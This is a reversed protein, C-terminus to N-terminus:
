FTATARYTVPTSYDTGAEQTPSIVAKYCVYVSDTDVVTTSSFITQPSESNEVDAFQKWCNGNNGDCDDTSDNHAFSLSSNGSLNNSQLSYGFGKTTTATWLDVQDYEMLPTGDDGTSDPICGGTTADGSCTDGVRHLQNDASATVAYGNAANTSVVLEQSAYKFSDILLEGLPVLTPTTTVSTNNGCRSVGSSVGLIRFTIQPPVSATVRVSEIVAVDVTTQDIITSGSLHEVIIKYSDAYGESHGTSPAPNILSDIIIQNNTSNFATGVGGAGTYPCTFAHYTRTDRVVSGANATATGFTYGTVNNPCTVSVASNNTNGYDWGSQDPLSDNYNSTAAPVLIRFTGDTIATATTFNATLRASRSAIVPDSTDADTSQLVNSGPTTSHNTITFTNVASVSAVKYKSQGITVIDGEFLNASSTSPADGPTSKITVLSSGVTNGAALQGYFSLRPTSLTVSVSTMNASRAQHWRQVPGLILGTLLLFIVLSFYKKQPM